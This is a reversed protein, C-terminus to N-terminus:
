PASLRAIERALDSATRIDSLINLPFSIDFEDEVGEILEMVDISSLGLDGALDSTASITRGGKDLSALIELVRELCSEYSAMTRKGPDIGDRAGHRM